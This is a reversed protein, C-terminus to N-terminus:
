IMYCVESIDQLKHMLKFKLGLPIAIWPFNQKHQKYWKLCKERRYITCIQDIICLCHNYQLTNLVSIFLFIIKLQKSSKLSNKVTLLNYLSLWYVRCIKELMGLFQPLTYAEPSKTNNNISLEIGVKWYEKLNEEDPRYIAWTM